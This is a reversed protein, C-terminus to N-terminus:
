SSDKSIYLVVFVDSLIIGSHNKKVMNAQIFHTGLLSPPIIINSKANKAM